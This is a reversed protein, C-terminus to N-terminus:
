RFPSGTMWNVLSWREGKTIKSVKHVEYSPFVTISGINRSAYCDQYGDGFLLLDGGEYDSSESLQLSLTLKRRSIHGGGIDRHWDYGHGELYKGLQFAGVTGDLDYKFINSNIDNIVNLIREYMWESAEHRKVWLIDTKRQIQNQDGWEIFNRNLEKNTALAIIDQCEKPSFVEEVTHYRTYEERQEQLVRSLVINEM